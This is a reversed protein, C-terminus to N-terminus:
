DIIIEVINPVVRPIMKFGTMSWTVKLLRDLRRWFNRLTCDFLLWHSSDHRWPFVRYSHSTRIIMTQSLLINLASRRERIDYFSTRNVILVVCFLNNSKGQLSSILRRRLKSSFSAGDFVGGLWMTIWFGSVSYEFLEILWVDFVFGSARCNFFHRFYRCVAHGIACRRYRWPYWGQSNIARSAWQGRYSFIVGKLRQNVVFCPNRPSM